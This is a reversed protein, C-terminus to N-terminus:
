KSYGILELFPTLIRETMGWIVDGGLDYAPFVREEGRLLLKVERRVGPESLRSLPVWFAREVEDSSSLRPAAALGFVFPRVQVPPLTPTRPYLDDLVGLPEAGSLEVGTEERAERIATARLDADSSEYRGGPFAVQGSWPDGSRVARKIFLAELGTREILVVAVAAPRAEPADVEHPAHAALSRRVRDLAPIVHGVPPHVLARDGESRSRGYSRGGDEM